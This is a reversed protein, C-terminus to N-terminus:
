FRGGIWAGGISGYSVVAGTHPAHIMQGGSVYIGVHYSYSAGGFFVLDGPQLSDLPVPTSAHQQATAGHALGIGIQAYCYMTLGSCDFSGPGAAGYVYPKGIQAQALAVVEPHGPGGPDVVVTGGGSSSSGSTASLAEREAQRQAQEELEKIQAKVGAQMRELRAELDEVKDKQTKAKAVLEVAAQKDAELKIRRDKIDAKYAAISKMTAVDSKGLREMVDLQTVLEDFSNTSFFVDVFGVDRAKYMSVARTELQAQALELNYEAVKLLRQNDRIQQKVTALSDMAQNYREVAMDVKPYLEQLRAAIERAKARKESLPTAGAAPALTLTLILISLLLLLPAVARRTGNM